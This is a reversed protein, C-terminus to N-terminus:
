AIKLTATEGAALQLVGALAASGAGELEFRELELAGESCGIEVEWGGGNARIRCRGFAAGNSWFAFQERAAFRMLKRVGCYEYGFLALVAGWSAMARAYHHGCEAEDFPNRRLGDYRARIAEIVELGDALQGELIMGVAATYEFGTMVENAYPFPRKPRGGRPWTAMLLASEDNLVYTRAHNFHHFFSRRFNHRMIAQHTSAVNEPSLLYGLGNLHAFFQGVLQDVLCGPGLQLDPDAPDRTGMSEIRLGPAIDAPDDVPVIQHEYYEGNFLNADAWASGAEFLRRCQAAFEEEGLHRAMEEAARLAGLYWGQMQPNPGFYEVDMTNHQCGEMVGDRDGDWGGAIWCYELARRCHPWLGALFGDDGSLRWERYLKMVCGLQGDAAASGFETAREGLPLLVRFAMKGAADTAHAFEVERMSRALDGFLYALAQEYNWVHTCSGPCCGVDDNCGEWGYFHGDATRFCTQTNLTSLNFLAAEKVVAPLDTGLFASVFELSRRELDQLRDAAQSAADWADQYRTAYYNGIWDPDGSESCCDDADSCCDNRDSCCDDADSCCSGGRRHMDWTLRNPFHWALVFTVSAEGGPAVSVPVALSGVALNDEAQSDGIQGDRSFEDWFDLLYNGWGPNPWATRYSCRKATTALALTGFQEARSDVGVSDMYIGRLGDDQRFRNRNRIPKGNSGDTGIFNDLSACVSAELMADSENAVVFRLAAFPMGSAEADGPILPNFAEIRVSVPVAPDSLCVQGFPYAAHFSCERWHPLGHNPVESGRWGEYDVPDITGELALAAPDQGEPKLWIAFFTASGLRQRPAFGKAPRNVIEWDRLQGRGGLSVCGTGIGGLPMGIARLRSQPYSTLVPWEPNTSIPM